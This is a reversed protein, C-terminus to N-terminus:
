EDQSVVLIRAMLPNKALIKDASEKGLIFFATALSDAVACTESVVSVSIIDTVVPYGTRPDVLHSYRKGQYDFFQEYNGSTAVAQDVLQLPPYNNAGLSNRKKPDRIGVKWPKGRNKGLCHMDGGANILASTIGKEKLRAVAEDVMYGKAVAGLDIAIGVEDITVTRNEFDVKIGEMGASNKIQEILEKAPLANIKGKAFLGKWFGYLVGQSVDFVGSTLDYIERSLKLVAILDDSAKFPELYTKNLRSVESDPDYNNFIGELRKFEQYAIGAARKDPSTVELYTGAVVFTNKHLPRTCSIFILGLIMSIFVIKIKKVM